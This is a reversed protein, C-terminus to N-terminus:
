AAPEVILAYIDLAGSTVPGGSYSLSAALQCTPGTIRVVNQVSGDLLDRPTAEYRDAVSHNTPTLVNWKDSVLYFTDNPTGDTGIGIQCFVDGAADNFTTIPIAWTMLVHSGVPLDDGVAVTGYNGFTTGGQGPTNYNVRYPGLVTFTDGDGGGGDGSAAAPPILPTLTTGDAHSAATTGGAGRQVRIRPAIAARTQPDISSSFHALVAVTEDEVTLYDATINASVIWDIEAADVAEALTAM